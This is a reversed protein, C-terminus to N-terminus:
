KLWMSINWRCSNIVESNNSCFFLRSASFRVILYSTYYIERFSYRITDITKQLIKDFYRGALVDIFQKVAHQEFTWPRHQFGAVQRYSFRIMVLTFFVIDKWWAGTLPFVTRNYRSKFTKDRPSILYICYIKKSIKWWSFIFLVFNWERM